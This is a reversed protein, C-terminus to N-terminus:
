LPIRVEIEDCLVRPAKRGKAGTGSDTTLEVLGLRALYHVEANVNKLDRGVQEALAKISRPRHTRIARLLELRRDSFFSRLAAANEFTLSEGTGVRRGTAGARLSRKVATAWEGLGRVGITVKRLRM